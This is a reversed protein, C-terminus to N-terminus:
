QAIKVNWYVPYHFYDFGEVNPRSAIVSSYHGLVSAAGYEYLFQQLSAWAAKAEDANAAYRIASVGDAVKASDLGAWGPNVVSTQPPSLQYSNSTIFLDWQEPDSRHEMFISFDYSEVEATIGIQRLQEQVVLTANYMEKYDPTTVLRITEGKYGAEALLQKAKEPNNQNYYEAGNEVAWQPQAPNIYGPNLKYLDPDGFSALLIDEDNLAALVAQRLVENALPGKTTNIFLNLSGSAKTYLRIDANGVLEKYNELPISEAIDYEGTQIGAIRTANDTVFRFYLNETAAQKQGVFGSPEGEPSQYDDYRVLHIYQDPAWEALKYPGTGIYEPLGEPTAADIVEKPSIAAFQAPAALLDLIDSAAKPVTLTLTYTDTKAFAAGAFLAKARTSVTLWRNLSAVADEATLEKGNHFKVGQRLEFTYVLGDDSISYSKALVLAPKFNGDLSFLSEFIHSAIGASANSSTAPADLTPPQATIAINITDKYTAATAQALITAPSVVAFLLALGVFLALFRTGNKRIM